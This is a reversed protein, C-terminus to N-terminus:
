LAGGAGRLQSRNLLLGLVLLLSAASASCTWPLQLRWTFCLQPQSFLLHHFCSFASPLRKVGLLFTRYHEYHFLFFNRLFLSTLFHHPSSSLLSDTLPSSQRHRHREPCTNSFQNGLIGQSPHQCSRWANRVAPFVQEGDLVQNSNSLGEWYGVWGNRGEKVWVVRTGDMKGRLDNQSCWWYNDSHSSAAAGRAGRQGRSDPARESTAKHCSSRAPPSFVFRSSSTFALFCPHPCTTAIQRGLQENWAHKFVAKAYHTPSYKDTLCFPLSVSFIKGNIDNKSM